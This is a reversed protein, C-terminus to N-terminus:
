DSNTMPTTETATASPGPSAFTSRVLQPTLMTNQGDKYFDYMLAAAPLGILMLAFFLSMTTERYGKDYFAGADNM